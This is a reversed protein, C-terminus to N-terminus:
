KKCFTLTFPHRLLEATIDSTKSLRELKGFVKRIKNFHGKTITKM